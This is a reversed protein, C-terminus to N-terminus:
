KKNERKIKVLSSLSSDCSNGPIFFSYCHTGHKAYNEDQLLLNHAKKLNFFPIKPFLHHVIHYGDACPHIFYENFWGLNNRSSFLENECGLSGHETIEAIFRIFVLTTFFPVFWYFLLMWLFEIKYFILFVTIWYSLRSISHIIKEDRSLFFAPVVDIIYFPFARLLIRILHFYSNAPLQDLGMNKYRKYDPDLKKDWFNQHHGYVHNTREIKINHFLPWAAFIWTLIDNLKFNKCINFHTSEHILNELGRQRSAILFNVMLYICTSFLNTGYEQFVYSSVFASMFIVSWSSLFSFLSRLLNPKQLSKLENNLYESQTLFFSNKKNSKESKKVEM